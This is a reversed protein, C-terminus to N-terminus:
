AFFRHSPFIQRPSRLRLHLEYLKSRSSFGLPRRGGEDLQTFQPWSDKAKPRLNMNQIELTNM